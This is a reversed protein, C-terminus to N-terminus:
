YARKMRVDSGVDNAPPGFQAAEPRPMESKLARIADIIDQDTAKDKPKAKSAGKEKLAAMKEFEGLRRALDSIMATNTMTLQGADVRKLGDPGTQVTPATAPVRELDQAMVGVRPGEGYQQAYPEKYRFKYAPIEAAQETLPFSATSSSAPGGYSATSGPSVEGRMERGRAKISDLLPRMDTKMREDSEVQKANVDSMVVEEIPPASQTGIRDAEIQRAAQIAKLDRQSDQFNKQFQALRLAYDAAAAKHVEPRNQTQDLPPITTTFIENAIAPSKREYQQFQSEGEARQEPSLPATGAPAMQAVGPMARKLLSNEKRLDQIEAKTTKDSLQSGFAMLGGGLGPGSNRDAKAGDQDATYPNQSSAQQEQIKSLAANYASSNGSLGAGFGMLGLGVKQGASPGRPGSPAPSNPYPQEPAFDGQGYYDGRPNSMQLTQMGGGTTIGPTGRSELMSARAPGPRLGTGVPEIDEKYTIDSPILGGAMTAIAGVGRQANAANESGAKLQAAQLQGYYALQAKAEDVSYGRALLDQMRQAQILDSYQKQAAIQEGARLQAAQANTQTAIDAANRQALAQNTGRGSAAAAMATRAGQAMQTQAVSPGKGAIQNQLTQGLGLQQNRSDLGLQREQDARATDLQHSKAEYQNTGLVLDDVKTDDWTFAM